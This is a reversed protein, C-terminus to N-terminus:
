MPFYMIWFVNITETTIESIDFTAILVDMKARFVENNYARDDGHSTATSYTRVYKGEEFGLLYQIDGGFDKAAYKDSIAKIDNSYEAILYELALTEYDVAEESKEVGEPIVIDSVTEKRGCGVFVVMTLVLLVLLTNRM